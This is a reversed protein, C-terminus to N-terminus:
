TRHTPRFQRRWTQRRQRYAKQKCAASCYHGSRGTKDQRFWNHCVPCQTLQTAEAEAEVLKTWVAQLTEDAQTLLYDAVHHRLRETETLTLEIRPM